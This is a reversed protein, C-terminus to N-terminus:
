KLDSMVQKKTFTREQKNALAKIRADLLIARGEASRTYVLDYKGISKRIQAVFAQADEKRKDFLSPVAFYETQDSVKEQAKLIYRQNEIPAFFEIMTQSFLEKERMTGGKLYILTNIADKRDRVVQIRTEQTQIQGSLLLAQHIAQGFVELRKYPSKYLYYRLWALLAPVALFFLLILSAKNGGGRHSYYILNAFADTLAAATLWRALKRADFFLALPLFHKDVQVENAIEMNELIPLAKQWGDRLEQRHTSRELTEENLKQLQKKTYRINDFALREIGSEIFPEKYHLGLFQKMRRELLELDPSYEKLQDTIAEIEEKELDSKEYWKKLSLNISVLHWINSTKDPEQPWVRIARGRM